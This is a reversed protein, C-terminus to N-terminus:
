LIRNLIFLPSSSREANIVHDTSRPDFTVVVVAVKIGRDKNPPSAEESSISKCSTRTINCMVEAGDVDWCILAGGYKCFSLKLTPMIVDSTHPPSPAPGPQLVGGGGGCTSADRCRPPVSFRLYTRIPSDWMRGTTLAGGPLLRLRCGREQAGDHGSPPEAGPLLSVISLSGGRRRPAALAPSPPGEGTSPVIM